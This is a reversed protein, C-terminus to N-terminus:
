GGVVGMGGRGSERMGGVAYWFIDIDEFRGGGVVELISVMICGIVVQVVLYIACGIM